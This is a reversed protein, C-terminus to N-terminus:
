VVSLLEGSWRRGGFVPGVGGRGRVGDDLGSEWWGMKRTKGFVSVVEALSWGVLRVFSFM